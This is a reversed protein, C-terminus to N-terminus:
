NSGTLPYHRGNGSLRKVFNTKVNYPTLYVFNIILHTTFSETFIIHYTILSLKSSSKMMGARICFHIM